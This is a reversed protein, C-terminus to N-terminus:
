TAFRKGIEDIGVVGPVPIGLKDLIRLQTPEPNDLSSKIHYTNGDLDEGLEHTSKGAFVSEGTPKIHILLPIRDSTKYVANEIPMIALRNIFFGNLEIRWRQFDRIM